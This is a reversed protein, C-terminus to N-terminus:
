PKKSKRDGDAQWKAVIPLMKTYLTDLDSPHNKYWDLSETFQEETIKYHDFIEKYYVALSDYNKTGARHLSDKAMTCYGEALSVDLLVQQMMKPPLHSGTYGAKNKCSIVLFLISITLLARM